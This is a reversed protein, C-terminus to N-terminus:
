MTIFQCGAPRGIDETPRTAEKPNYNYLIIITQITAIRPCPSWYDALQHTVQAASPKIPPPNQWPHEICAVHTIFRKKGNLADISDSVPRALIGIPPYLFSFPFLFPVLILNLCIHVSRGTVRAHCSPHPFFSDLYLYLIATM